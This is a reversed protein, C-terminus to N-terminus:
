QQHYEVILAERMSQSSLTSIKTIDNGGHSQKVESFTSKHRHVFFLLTNAFGTLGLCTEVVAQLVQDGEMGLALAMDYIMFPCLTAIQTFSFGYLSKVARTSNELISSVGKKRTIYKSRYYFFITACFSVILPLVM